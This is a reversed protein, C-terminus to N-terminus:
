NVSIYAKSADYYLTDKAHYDAQEDQARLQKYAQWLAKEAQKKTRFRFAFGNFMTEKVEEFDTSLLASRLAFNGNIQGSVYITTQM